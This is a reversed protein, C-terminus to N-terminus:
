VARASSLVSTLLQLICSQWWNASTLLSQLIFGTLFDLFPKLHHQFEIFTTKTLICNAHLYEKRSILSNGQCHPHLLYKPM